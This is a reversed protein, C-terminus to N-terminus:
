PAALLDLRFGAAGLDGTDLDLRVTVEANAPMGDLPNRERALYDEPLFIRRALTHDNKNTLVLDLAPYGVDYGAHNRLTATLQIVGPRATDPIQLDSAEINILKPRQPLPVRCGVAACAEALAPKVAPYRAAIEGRFAYTAHVALGFMLLLSGALWWRRGKAPPPATMFTPEADADVSLKGQSAHVIVQAPEAVDPVAEAPINLTVPDGLLDLPPQPAVPESTAAASPVPIEPLPQEVATAPSPPEQAPEPSAVPEPLTPAPTDVPVPRADAAPVPAGPLTVLTKFGDFVKMCRGCRVEGQRAQLDRPAVRFLTECYPCRTAMSM